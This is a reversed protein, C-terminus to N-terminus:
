ALSPEGFAVSMVVNATKRGVGALSELEGHTQPIEGDFKDLLSKCLKQINKAKNRYLGITRIDNELESIDVNLYDEPTKYKEFLKDTLKNVSIDTTQASLLVAITLEFPNDHKLECEANPFMEAIVNVMKLAKKNSIM